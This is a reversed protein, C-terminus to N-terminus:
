LGYWRRVVFIDRRKKGGQWVNVPRRTRTIETLRQSLNTLLVGGNGSRGCELRSEIATQRDLVIIVHGNWVILDLPQLMPAIEASPKGAIPVGQGYTLLQTTNRPTWGGTAHYLLGSCDLGALRIRERDSDMAVKYFWAELEPVGGPVNGGWVYPKGVSTRLASLIDERTPLSPRRPPPATSQLKLFRGDIYLRVNPPAAYEDTEVQYIDATGSRQKKLITFVSGPLAIFELERVQGCSDVKLDQGNVGGFVAKFDPANLVPASVLAVGYESAEAPMLCAYGFLFIFIVIRIIM